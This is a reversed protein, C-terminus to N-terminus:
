YLGEAQVLYDKDIGLLINIEIKRLKIEQQSRMTEPTLQAGSVTQQISM